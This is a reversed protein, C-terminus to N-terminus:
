ALKLVDSFNGTVLDPGFEGIDHGYNYGYTLGVSSVGAAMAALIDNSSDGVMVTEEPRAGM